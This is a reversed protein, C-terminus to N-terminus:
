AMGFSLALLDDRVQGATFCHGSNSSHLMVQAPSFLMPDIDYFNGYQAWLQEFLRGYDRSATSPLKEAIEALAEDTDDLTYSVVAGYLIADNTRGLAQFDNKSAPPLPAYGMGNRVKRLDYGLEALKHLGTEVSRATVQLTGAPSATPAALVYLCDATLKTKELVLDIAAQTPYQDTELCLVGQRCHGDQYDLMDFIEESHMISRVPGSSISQYDDTKLFWGAYQSAMCAQRPFDTYVEVAPLRLQGFSHWTLNVEALGGLCAKSFLIGAQRSGPCKIGCDILTAGAVKEVKVQLEASRELLQRVYSMALENVSIIEQM